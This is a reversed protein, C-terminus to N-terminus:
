DPVRYELYEISGDMMDVDCSAFYQFGNESLILKEPKKDPVFKVDDIGVSCFMKGDHESWSSCANEEYKKFFDMGIKEVCAQIGIRKAEKAELM